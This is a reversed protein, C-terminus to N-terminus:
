NLRMSIRPYYIIEYEGNGDIVVGLMNTLSGPKAEGSFIRYTAAGANSLWNYDVRVQRPGSHTHAWGV